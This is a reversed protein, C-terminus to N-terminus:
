FSPSDYITREGKLKNSTNILISGDVKDTTKLNKLETSALYSYKTAKFKEKIETFKIQAKFYKKMKLLMRAQEYHSVPNGVCTGKSSEVYSKYAEEYRHNREAIKGLQFHAPCYDYKEKLSAKFNMEADTLEGKRTNILGLNYFTRYQHKYVLDEKVENYLQKAQDYKRLKYYIAALNIRADSNKPNSSLSQQLHTRAQQWRNKFYYAMALNNNLKSDEPNIAHAKLLFDLADSYKKEFLASTGHSYYLDFKQEKKSKEGKSLLTSCSVLTFCICGTILRKLVTNFLKVKKQM